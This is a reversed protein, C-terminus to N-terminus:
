RPMKVARDLSEIDTMRKTDVSAAGAPPANLVTYFEELPRSRRLLGNFQEIRNEILENAARFQVEFITGDKGYMPSLLISCGERVILGFHGGSELLTAREQESNVLMFGTFLGGGEFEKGKARYQTALANMMEVHSHMIPALQKDNKLEEQTIIFVRRITACREAAGRNM